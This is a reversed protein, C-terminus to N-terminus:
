DIRLYGRIRALKRPGIGNVALLDEARQFPGNESRYAIIKAATVPGIGPLAILEELTASNIAISAPALQPRSPLSRPSGAGEPESGPGARSRAIFESDVAAYDMAPSQPRGSARYWRVAEGVLLAFALCAIALTEQRTFALYPRISSWFGM